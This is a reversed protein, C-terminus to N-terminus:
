SSTAYKMYTDLRTSHISFWLEYVSLNFTSPLFFCDKQFPGM